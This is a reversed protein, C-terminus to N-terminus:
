LPTISARTVEPNERARVRGVAVGIKGECFLAMADASFARPRRREIFAFVM